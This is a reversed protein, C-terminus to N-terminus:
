KFIMKVFIDKGGKDDLYLVGENPNPGSFFNTPEFYTKVKESKWLKERKVPETPDNMDIALMVVPNDMKTFKSVGSEPTWEKEINNFHDNFLVYMKDGVVRCLYGMGQNTKNEQLKPIRLDWNLEGTRANVSFFQADGRMYTTIDVELHANYRTSDHHTEALILYNDDDLKEFGKVVFSEEFAGAPQSKSDKQVRKKTGKSQNMSMYEDSFEVYKFVPRQKVAGSWSLFALGDSKEVWSKSTNEWDMYNAAMIMGTEMGELTWNRIKHEQDGAVSVMEHGNANIKSLKVNYRADNDFGDGKDTRGWCYVNGANDIGVANEAATEQWDSGGLYYTNDSDFVVDQKWLLKLDDNFALFQFHPTPDDKKDARRAKIFYVVFKRKDPSVAYSLHGDNFNPHFGNGQVRTVENPDKTDLKEQDFESLYVVNAEDFHLTQGTLLVAKEKLRIFGKRVFAADSQLRDIGNSSVPQLTTDYVTYIDQQNFFSHTIFGNDNSILFQDVSKGATKKIAMGMYVDINESRGTKRQAWSQNSIFALGLVVLTWKFTLLKRM